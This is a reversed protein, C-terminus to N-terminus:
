TYSLGITVVAAGVLRVGKDFWWYGHIYTEKKTPVLLDGQPVFPGASRMERVGYWCWATGVVLAVSGLSRITERNMQTLVFPGHM